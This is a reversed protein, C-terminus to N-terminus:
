TAACRSDAGGCTSNPLAHDSLRIRGGNITCPFNSASCWGVSIRGCRELFITNKRIHKKTPKKTKKFFGKNDKEWSKWALSETPSNVDTRFSVDYQFTLQSAPCQYIRVVTKHWKYLIWLSLLATLYIYHRIVTSTNCKYFADRIMLSQTDAIIVVMHWTLCLYHSGSWKGMTLVKLDM